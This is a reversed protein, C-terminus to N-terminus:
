GFGDFRIWQSLSVGGGVHTRGPLVSTILAAVSSMLSEIPSDRASRRPTIHGRYIAKYIPLM